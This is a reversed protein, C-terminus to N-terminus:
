GAAISLSLSVAMTIHGPVLGIVGASVYLAQLWPAAQSADQFNQLFRLFGAEDIGFAEMDPPYARAFGRSKEGPRRQPIIIPYPLRLSQQYQLHVEGNRPPFIDHVLASVTREPVPRQQTDVEKYSPPAGAAEDLAWIREDNATEDGLQLTDVLQEDAQTSRSSSIEQEELIAKREKRDHYKEGVLGIGASVGKVATSILHPLAM